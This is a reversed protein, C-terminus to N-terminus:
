EPGCDTLSKFDSNLHRSRRLLPSPGVLHWKIVTVEVRAIPLGATTAQRSCKVAVPVVAKGLHQQDFARRANPMLSWQILCSLLTVTISPSLADGCLARCTWVKVRSHGILDASLAPQARGWLIPVELPPWIYDHM